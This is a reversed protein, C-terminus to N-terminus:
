LENFDKKDLKYILIKHDADEGEKWLSFNLKELVKISKFNEPRTRGIITELNLEEFGQKLAATASETAYGKNWHQKLFRFGLDVYELSEERRLGCWGLYTENSKDLVTWRGMGTKDYAEYNRIFKSAADISEFPGDPVHQIVEPDNNLDFMGKADELRFNRLILRNTEIYTAKM